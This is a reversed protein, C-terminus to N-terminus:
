QNFSGESHLGQESSVRFRFGTASKKEVIIEITVPPRAINKFKVRPIDAFRSSDFGLREALQLAWDVQVVGALVPLGPFHGAFCPDHEALALSCSVRADSIDEVVFQPLLNNPDPM